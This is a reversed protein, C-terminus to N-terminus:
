PDKIEVEKKEESQSREPQKAAPPDKRVPLPGKEKNAPHEFACRDGHKCQGKLFFRCIDKKAGEM